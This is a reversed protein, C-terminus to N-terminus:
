SIVGNALTFVYGSTSKQSNTCGVFDAHSYGIVELNDTKKYTLMYHKTGHLSCLVKKTTKWHKIGLNFQFRGLFRAVFVLDPRMCIQAYMICVVASAYSILKTQDIELQNRPSLFTGLKDGKVFPVSMGFCDHINYMKLMKEIYAKSIPQACM